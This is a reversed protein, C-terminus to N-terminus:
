PISVMTGHLRRWQLQRGYAKRQLLLHGSQFFTYPCHNVQKDCYNAIWHYLLTSIHVMKFSIGRFRRNQCNKLVMGTDSMLCKWAFPDVRMVSTWINDKCIAHSNRQWILFSNRLYNFFYEFNLSSNRQNHFETYTYISKFFFYIFLCSWCCSLLCQRSLWIVYGFAIAWYKLWYSGRMVFGVFHTHAWRLSLDAQADAWDLWLRRQASLPYALSELKRWASLSSESLVPRIGLSIQTKAPRM